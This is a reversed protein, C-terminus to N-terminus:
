LGGSKLEKIVCSLHESINEIDNIARGTFTTQCNHSAYLGVSNYHENFKNYALSMVFGEDRSDRNRIWKSNSNFRDKQMAECIEKFVERAEDESLYNFDGQLRRIHLEYNSSTELVIYVTHYGHNDLDIVWLDHKYEPDIATGNCRTCDKTQPAPNAKDLKSVLSDCEL